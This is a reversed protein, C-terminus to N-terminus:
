EGGGGGGPAEDDKDPSPTGTVARMLDHTESIAKFTAANTEMMSERVATISNSTAANTEGILRFADALLANTKENSERANNLGKSIAEIMEQQSRFVDAVLSPTKWLEEIERRLPRVIEYTINVSLTLANIAILIIGGSTDRPLVRIIAYALVDIAIGFNILRLARSDGARVMKSVIRSLATKRQVGGKTTEKTPRKTVLTRVFWIIVFPVILLLAISGFLAIERLIAHQSYFALVGVSALAVISGFVVNLAAFFITLDSVEPRQRKRLQEINQQNEEARAHQEPKNDGEQDESFSGVM